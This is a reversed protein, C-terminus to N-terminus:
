FVNNGIYLRQQRGINRQLLPLFSWFLGLLLNLFISLHSRGEWNFLSFIFNRPFPPLVLLARSSSQPLYLPPVQGGLQFSLLHFESSFSSPGFSGSFFISSSLSTPGARGTSFLSSSIGLFSWFLGLLLDLFISLHSGGEWNFLSFIFNM